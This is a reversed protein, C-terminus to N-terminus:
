QKHLSHPGDLDKGALGFRFHTACEGVPDM